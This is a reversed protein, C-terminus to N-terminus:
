YKSTPVQPVILKHLFHLLSNEFFSLARAETRRINRLKSNQNKTRVPNQRRSTGLQSQNERIKRIETQNETEVIPLFVLFLWYRVRLQM